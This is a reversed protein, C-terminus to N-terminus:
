KKIKYKNDINEICGKNLWSRIEEDCPIESTNFKHALNIILSQVERFSRAEDLFAKPFKNFLYEKNRREIDEKIVGLPKRYTIYASQPNTDNIQNTHFTTSRENSVINIFEFGIRNMMLDRLEDWIGKFKSQFVITFYSGPKLVRYVESFANEIQTGWEKVYEPKKDYDMPIIVENELDEEEKLWASYFLNLEAYPVIGGYPPDIFAYDISNNPIELKKSNGRIIKINNNVTEEQTQQQIFEKAKLITKMKRDFVSMVNQEKGLPPVHYVNKIGSAVFLRKSSRFLIETFVFNFFRNTKENNINTNIYNYIIKLALLNKEPFLDSVSADIPFGPWGGVRPYCRNYVIKTSPCWLRGYVENYQRYKEDWLEIDSETIERTERKKNDLRKLNLEVPRRRDIITDKDEQKSINIINDCNKCKYESRKGTASGHLIIESNCEKCRYVNSTIISEIYGITGDDNVTKYLDNMLEELNNKMTKYTNKIDDIDVYDLTNVAISIAQPSSDVLVAKRNELLAAIGTTGSGCFSDLVVGGEETYADIYKQINPYYIKSPYGYAKFIPNSAREKDSINLEDLNMKNRIKSDQNIFTEIKDINIYERTKKTM